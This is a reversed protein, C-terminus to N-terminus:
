YDKLCRVSLGNNLRSRYRGFSGHYYDLYRYCATHEDNQSASWWYGHGGAGRFAGNLGNRHGGPLATFGSYNVAGYNPFEWNILGSEKLMGGVGCREMTIPDMGPYCVCGSTINDSLISWEEDCPLHWGDPCVGQVDGPVNNSSEGDSAAYWSYLVGYISEPDDNYYCWAPENQLKRWEAVSSINRISRGDAYQIARLNEQMWCQSGIVVTSYKNGNIDTLVDPCQDVVVIVSKTASRQGYKNSCKLSVQYEGPSDYGHVPNQRVSTTSDGFDWLWSDPEFRSQDEFRFTDPAYGHCHNVTFDPVPPIALKDPQIESLIEESICSFCGVGHCVDAASVLLTTNIKQYYSLSFEGTYSFSVISYYTLPDNETIVYNMDSGCSHCSPYRDPLFLYEYEKQASATLSVCCIFM